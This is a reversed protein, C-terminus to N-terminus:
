KSADQRKLERNRWNLLRKDATMLTAGHVLATAAIFRDSPDGHLDELEMARVAIDGTLPIEQIGGSLINSRQVAATKAGILKGKATLLAIEWFSIASVALHDQAFAARALKESQRGLAEDAASFWILTHTDLLIVEASGM